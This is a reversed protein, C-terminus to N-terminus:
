IESHIDLIYSWVNYMLHSLLLYLKSTVIFIGMFFSKFFMLSFYIVSVFILIFSFLLKKM